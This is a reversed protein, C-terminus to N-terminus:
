LQQFLLSICCILFISLYLYSHNSQDKYLIKYRTGLYFSKSANSSSFFWGCPSPPCPPCTPRSSPYSWWTSLPSTWLNSTKTTSFLLSICILQLYSSVNGKGEGRMYLLAHTHTHTPPFLEGWILLWHFFIPETM